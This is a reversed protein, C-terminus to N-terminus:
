GPNCLSNLTLRFEMLVECLFDCLLQKKKQKHNIKLTDQYHFFGFRAFIFLCFFRYPWNIKVLYLHTHIHCSNGPFPAPCTLAPFQVRTRQFFLRLEPVSLWSELGKAHMKIGIWRHSCRYHILRKCM